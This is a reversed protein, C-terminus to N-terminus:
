LRRARPLLGHIIVEEIHAGVGQYRPCVVHILEAAIQHTDDQPSLFPKLVLGLLSLLEM